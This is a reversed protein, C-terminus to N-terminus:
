LFFAHETQKEKTEIWSNMSNFNFRNKDDIYRARLFYEMKLINRLEKPWKKYSFQRVCRSSKMSKLHKLDVKVIQNKSFAVIKQFRIFKLYFDMEKKFDHNVSAPNPLIAFDKKQLKRFFIGGGCM